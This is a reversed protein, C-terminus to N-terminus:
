NSVCLCDNPLCNILINFIKEDAMIVCDQLGLHHHLPNTSSPHTFTLCLCLSAEVLAYIVRYDTTPEPGQHCNAVQSLKHDKDATKQYAQIVCKGRAQVDTVAEQSCGPRWFPCRQDVKQQIRTNGM